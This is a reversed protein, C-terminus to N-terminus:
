KVTYHITGTVFCRQLSMGCDECKEECSSNLYRSKLDAKQDKIWANCDGKLDKVASKRLEETKCGAMGTQSKSGFVASMEKETPEGIPKTVDASLDEGDSESESSIVTTTSKRVRKSTEAHAGYSFSLMCFMAVLLAFAQLKIQIKPSLVTKEKLSFEKSRL